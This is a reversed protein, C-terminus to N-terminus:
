AESVIYMEENIVERTLIEVVTLLSEKFSDTDIRFGVSRRPSPLLM